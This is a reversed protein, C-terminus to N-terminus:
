AHMTLPKNTQDKADYVFPMGLFGYRVGVSLVFGFHGMPMFGALSDLVDAKTLRNAPSVMCM